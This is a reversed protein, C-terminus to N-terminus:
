FMLEEFGNNRFCHSCLSDVIDSGPVMELCGFCMLERDMDTDSQLAPDWGFDYQETEGAGTTGADNLASDSPDRIDCARLLNDIGTPDGDMEDDSTAGTGVTSGDGTDMNHFNSQGASLSADMLTTAFNLDRAFPTCDFSFGAAAPADRSDAGHFVFQEPVVPGLPGAAAFNLDRASSDIAFPNSAATWADIFNWDPLLAEEAVPASELSIDMQQPGATALARDGDHSSLDPANDFVAPADGVETYQLASAEVRISADSMDKDEPLVVPSPYEIELPMVASLDIFSPPAAADSEVPLPLVTDIALAGMKEVLNGWTGAQRPLDTEEYSRESCASDDDDAVSKDDDMQAPLARPQLRVQLPESEVDGPPSAPHSTPRPAAIAEDGDIVAPSPREPEKTLEPSAIPHSPEEPDLHSIDAVDDLITTTGGTSVSWNAYVTM